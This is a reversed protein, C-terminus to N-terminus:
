RLFQTIVSNFAPITFRYLGFTDTYSKVIIMIEIEVVTSWRTMLGGRKKEMRGYNSGKSDTWDKM